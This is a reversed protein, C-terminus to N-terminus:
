KKFVWEQYVFFRLPGLVTLNIVVAILYQVSTFKILFGYFVLNSIYFAIITLVFRIRQSGHDNSKFVFRSSTFYVGIYVLTATVLYAFTPPSSFVEVGVFTGLMLALYSLLTISGYRIIRYILERLELREHSFSPDM